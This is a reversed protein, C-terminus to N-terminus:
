CCSVMLCEVRGLGLSGNYSTTPQVQGVCLHQLIWFGALPHCLFGMSFLSSLLLYAAGVAGIKYYVFTTLSFDLLVISLEKINSRWNYFACFCLSFLMWLPVSVAAVSMWCLRRVFGAFQPQYLVFLADEDVDRASGVFRHHALHGGGMYYATWPPHCLASGFQCLSFVVSFVIKRGKRPM